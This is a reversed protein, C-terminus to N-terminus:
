RRNNRFVIFLTVNVGITIISALLLLWFGINVNNKLYDYDKMPKRDFHNRINEVIPKTIDLSLTKQALIGDRIKVTMLENGANEGLTIVDAWKLLGDKDYGVMVIVDNKKGGDWIHEVAHRYEQGYDQTGLLVINAQKANGLQKLEDNLIKNMDKTLNGFGFVRNVKYYSHVRPYSPVSFSEFNNVEETSFTSTKSGKIYNLYMEEVACAQGKKANKYPEPDPTSYVSRYESDLFKIDIVGVDCNVDWDVTYHDRTCTQCTEVDNVTTCNCSYIELWYDQVRTKNMVQGNILQFDAFQSMISLWIVLCGAITSGTLQLVHEGLKIEKNKMTVATCISALLFMATYGFM